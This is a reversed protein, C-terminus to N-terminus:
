SSEQHDPTRQHAEIALNFDHMLAALQSIREPSWGALAKEIAQRRGEIMQQCHQRGHDTLALQAARGDVPDPDRRILGARVLQAVQRSVTSADVGKSEALEGLRMSGAHLLPWLLLLSSQDPVTATGPAQKLMRVFRLIETHLRQIPEARPSSTGTPGTGTPETGAERM